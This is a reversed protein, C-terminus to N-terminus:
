CFDIWILGRIWVLGEEACPFKRLSPVLLDKRRNFGGFHSRLKKFGLGRQM